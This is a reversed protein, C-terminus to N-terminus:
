VDPRRADLAKQVSGWPVPPELADLEAEFTALDDGYRTKWAPLALEDLGAAVEERRAHLDDLRDDFAALADGDSKSRDALTRLGVLEARLDSLLLGTV